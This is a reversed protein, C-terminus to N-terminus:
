AAQRNNSRNHSYEVHFDLDVAGRYILAIPIKGDIPPRPEVTFGNIAFVNEWFEGADVM